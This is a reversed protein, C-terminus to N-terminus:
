VCWTSLSHWNSETDTRLRPMQGLCNSFIISLTVTLPLNKSLLSFQCTPSNKPSCVKYSNTESCNSARKCDNASLPVSDNIKRLSSVNSTTTAKPPLSSDGCNSIVNSSNNQKKRSLSYVSFCSYKFAASFNRARALLISFVPCSASARILAKVFLYAICPDSSFLNRLDSLKDSAFAARCTSTEARVNERHSDPTCFIGSPAIFSNLINFLTQGM